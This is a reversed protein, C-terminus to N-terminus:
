GMALTSPCVFVLTLNSPQDSFFLRFTGKECLGLSTGTCFLGRCLPRPEGLGALLECEPCLRPGQPWLETVPLVSGRNSSCGNPFCGLHPVTQASKPPEPAPTPEGPQTWLLSLPVAAQSPHTPPPLWSGRTFLAPHPAPSSRPWRALRPGVQSPGPPPMQVDGQLSRSVTSTKLYPCARPTLGADSLEGRLDSTPM